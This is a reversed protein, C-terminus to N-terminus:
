SMKEDSCSFGPNALHFSNAATGPLGTTYPPKEEGIARSKQNTEM